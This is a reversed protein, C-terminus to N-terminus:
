HDLYALLSYALLMDTDMGLCRKIAHQPHLWFVWTHCPWAAPLRTGSLLTWPSQGGPRPRCWLGKLMESGQNGWWYTLSSETSHCRVGQHSELTLLLCPWFRTSDPNGQFVKFGGVFSHVCLAQTPSGWVTQCYTWWLGNKQWCM